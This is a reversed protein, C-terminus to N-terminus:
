KRVIREVGLSESGSLLEVFYVGPQFNALMGLEFHNAGPRATFNRLSLQQGSANRALITLAETRDTTYLLSAGGASPNPYISIASTRSSGTKVMRTETYRTDGDAATAKVRYYVVDCGAPVTRDTHTYAASPESTLTHILTFVTQDFSRELEFKMGPEYEASWNLLPASGQMRASFYNWRIPLAVGNRYVYSCGSPLQLTDPVGQSRFVTNPHVTGYQFDFISGTRTADFIKLTDLTYGATGVTGSNYTDGNFYMYGAGRITSYNTLKAAKVKANARNTFTGSVYLENTNANTKGVWLIGKNEFAGYVTLGKETVLKCENVYTTGSSIVMDNSPRLAGTNNLQGGWGNFNQTTIINENILTGESMNVSGSVDLSGRNIVTCTPSYLNFSGTISIAGENELRTNSGLSFSGSIDMKAGIRNIWLQPSSWSDYMSAGGSISVIGYNDMDFGDFTGFSSLRAEGYNIIHGKPTILYSPRFTANPGVWIVANQNFLGIGGRYTGSTIRLTDGSFLNYTLSTGADLYNTANSQTSPFIVCAALTFCALLTCNTKM